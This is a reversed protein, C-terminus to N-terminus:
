FEFLILFPQKQSFISNQDTLRWNSSKAISIKQTFSISRYFINVIKLQQDGFRTDEDGVGWIELM